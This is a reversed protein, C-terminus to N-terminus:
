EMAFQIPLTMKVKVKKGSQEGPTWAPMKGVTELAAARL